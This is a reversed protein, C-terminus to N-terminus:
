TQLDERWSLPDEPDVGDMFPIRRDLHTLQYVLGLWNNFLAKGTDGWTNDVLAELVSDPFVPCAAGDTKAAKAATVAQRHSELVAAAEASFYHEPFPAYEDREGTFFRTVERKYEKLLSSGDYEPHGQFYVFRLGDASVALHAIQEESAVLM